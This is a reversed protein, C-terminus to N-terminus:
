APPKPFCRCNPCIAVPQLLGGFDLRGDLETAEFSIRGLWAQEADQGSPTFMNM